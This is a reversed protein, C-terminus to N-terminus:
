LRRLLRVSYPLALVAAVFAALSVPLVFQSGRGVLWYVGSALQAHYIAPAGPYTLGLEATAIHPAVILLVAVGLLPIALLVVARGLMLLGAAVSIAVILPFLWSPAVATNRWVQVLGAIAAGLAYGCWRLLRADWIGLEAWCNPLWRYRSPARDYRAVLDKSCLLFLGGVWLLVLGWNLVLWRLPDHMARLNPLVQGVAGVILGVLVARAAYFRLVLAATFVLYTVVNGGFGCRWTEFASIGLGGAILLLERATRGALLPRDLASLLALAM